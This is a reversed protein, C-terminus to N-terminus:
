IEVLDNKIAYVVLGALNKSGTKYMLNKRYGEITRPSLQMKEGIEAATYEQCLYTLVDLEKDSFAVKEHLEKLKQKKLFSKYVIQSMEENFYFNRDIVAVLSEEVEKPDANKFLYGSVGKEILHLIFREDDQMSLVIIKVSPFQEKIIETAEIGDMIPMKLDLLVVDPIPETVKLLDILERGNAAEYINSVCSFDDLIARMGKRFLSHDDAIVVDIKKSVM